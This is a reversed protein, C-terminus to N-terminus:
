SAQPARIRLAPDGLLTHRSDPFQFDGNLGAQRARKTALVAKGLTEDPSSWLETWFSLYFLYGSAACIIGSPAVSAVSGGSSLLLLERILTDEGSDYFNQNATFAVVLSPPGMSIAPLDELTVFDSNSWITQNGYGLFALLRTGGQLESLFDSRNTYHPADQRVDVRQVALDEPVLTAFEEATTEFFLPLASGDYFDAVILGDKQYVGPDTREYALTKRIVASLEKLNSVPFRGLALDPYDDDDGEVTSYVDDIAVEVEGWRGSLSSEFFYIPILDTDGILLLYEVKPEQWNHYAYAVFARIDEETSPADPFATEIQELTVVTVSLGQDERHTV